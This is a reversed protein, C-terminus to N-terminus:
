KVVEAVALAADLDTALTAQPDEYTQVFPLPTAKAIKEFAKEDLREPLIAVGTQKAWAVAESITYRLRTRLQIKVGPAPAKEGTERYHAEAAARLQAESTHLLDALEKRMSLLDANNAEFVRRKEDLVTDLSAVERRLLAVAQVHTLLTPDVTTTM